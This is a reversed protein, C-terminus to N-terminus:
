FRRVPSRGQIERCLNIVRECDPFIRGDISEHAGLYKILWRLFQNLLGPHGLNLRIRANARASGPRDSPSPLGNGGNFWGGLIDMNQEQPLSKTAQTIASMPALNLESMWTDVQAPITYVHEPTLNVTMAMDIVQGLTHLKLELNGHQGPELTVAWPEHLHEKAWNSGAIQLPTWGKDENESM